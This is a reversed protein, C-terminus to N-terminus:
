QAATGSRRTDRWGRPPYGRFSAVVLLAFLTYALTFVWPPARWYVFWWLWHAIFGPEGYTMGGHDRRLAEELATLPCVWGVWAELVVIGIALLHAWRFWPARVWSWRRWWGLLILAQGGVVFLVFAAHVALVVDALWAAAFPETM